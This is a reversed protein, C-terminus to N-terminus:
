ITPPMKAPGKQRFRSGAEMTSPVEKRGSIARAKMAKLVPSNKRRDESFFFPPLTIVIVTSSDQPAASRTKRTHWRTSPRLKAKETTSPARAVAVAGAEVIMVM